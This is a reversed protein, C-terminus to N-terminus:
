KPERSAASGPALSDALIASAVAEGVDNQYLWVGDLRGGYSAEGGVTPSPSFGSGLGFSYVHPVVQMETTRMRGDAHNGTLENTSLVGGSMLQIPPFNPRYGTAIVCVDFPGSEQIAAALNQTLIMSVPVNAAGVCGHQSIQQAARHAHYRLGSFRNVRGSLPCVDNDEDFEYDADRAEHKTGFFLRLASRGAITISGNRESLCDGLRIAASVASHSTGVVLASLKGKGGPFLQRIETNTMALFDDSFATRSSCRALDSAPLPNLPRGGCNAIIRDCYVTEEIFGSVGATGISFSPSSSHTLQTIGVARTRLMIRLECVSRLYECFATAMARVLEAALELRPPEHPCNLLQKAPEGQLIATFLGNCRPDSLCELFVAGLSNATIKYRGLRGSGLHESEEIILLRPGVIERLIGRKYAAVLLGFNAPGFGVLVASYRADSLLCYSTPDM